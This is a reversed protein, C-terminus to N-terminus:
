PFLAMAKELKRMYRNSVELRKGVVLQIERKEKDFSTIKEFNVLIARHCRIFKKGLNKEIKGISGRFEYRGTETYLFVNGTYSNTEFYLIQSLEVVEVRDKYDGIGKFVFTDQLPADKVTFKAFADRICGCVRDATNIDGKVIYDMAEVKYKFTLIHSEADSTIFVVFGRPDYSRIKQALAIGDMEDHGLNLDLFYLGAAKNEGLYNLLDGPSATSCVIKMALNEMMVYNGVLKALQERYGTDDECIFVSLM